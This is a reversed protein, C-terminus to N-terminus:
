QGQTVLLFNLGKFFYPFGSSNIHSLFMKSTIYEPINEQCVHKAVFNQYSNVSIPTNILSIVSSNESKQTGTEYLKWSLYNSFAACM